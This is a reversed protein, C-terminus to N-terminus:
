NAPAARYIGGLGAEVDAVRILRWRSHELDAPLDAANVPLIRMRAEYGNNSTTGYRDFYSTYTTLTRQVFMRSDVLFSDRGAKRAQQAAALMALEEITARNTLYGGYRINLYNSGQERKVYFGNLDSLFYGDGTGKLMPVMSSTEPRPLLAVLERVTLANEKAMTEDIKDYYTKVIGDRVATDAPIMTKVQSLLDPLVLFTEPQKPDIVRSAEAVTMAGLRARLDILAKWRDLKYSGREGAAVQRSHTQLVKKRYAKGLPLEPLPATVEELDTQAAAIVARSMATNGLAALAYARAGSLDSRKEIAAYKEEDLGQIQWDGRGRPLDFSVEQSTDAATKFDSYLMAMWFLRNLSEPSYRATERILRRQAERDKENSLRISLTLQRLVAAYPRASDIAALEALGAETRGLKFDAVARLARNGMVVSREFFIDKVPAAADSAALSVLAGAADGADIQHTAKAQLLHARRLWYQPLLLPDALAADCAPIAVAGFVYQGRRVDESRSALGWLWTGKTMGDVKNTPTAYGDCIGFDGSGAMAPTAM